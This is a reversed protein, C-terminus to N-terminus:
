GVIELDTLKRYLTAKSLGLEKAIIDKATGNNGHKRLKRTIIEKEYQRVQESLPLDSDHFSIFSEDERMLRSPVEDIGITDGFAMNTGYEIANELERVNGPWDHNMYLSEVEKTFGTIKRNMFSNYKKLFHYMLIKIDEKRERLPPIDMPIVGLKYYLDDRFEGEKVMKELDKNSAAMVRVDVIVDKSGGVREFRMSQLVQLIKVQLHVPVDGIEDLFITGGNALEFKGPRDPDGAGSGEYGFLEGELMNGPIAGCNVTVFPAESRPSAYHIAKAFMEKGTGSEGTILVTSNGKAIVAAQKKARRIDESIGVIDDLTNKLARTNINYVLKQAEKIDRFSIVVGDIADGAMYPKATVIFHWRGRPSKFIEENETYGKGTDIVKLAPTGAMFDNIHSGVIDAKTAGFLTAAMKNCHKIYGKRDLAFIGEHTTELVASIENMSAETDELLERQAAKAALLDAMKEVFTVMSRKKDLLIRKQEDTFAVMGIIGIIRSNIKIPTCIEALEGSITGASGMDDYDADHVADEIFETKGSRFVRAYLFNGDLRGHEEKQGIKSAYIGTGGLITLEDDVIEVEVGVAIGIAEAVQKVSNSIEKLI